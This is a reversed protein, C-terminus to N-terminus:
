TGCVMSYTPPVAVPREGAEAAGWGQGLGGTQSASPLIPSQLVLRMQVQKQYYSTAGWQHAPELFGAGVQGLVESISRIRSVESPVVRVRPVEHEHNCM